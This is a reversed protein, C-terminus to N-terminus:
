PALKAISPLEEETPALLKALAKRRKVLQARATKAAEAREKYQIAAARSRSEKRLLDAIEEDYQTLLRQEVSTLDATTKVPKTAEILNFMAKRKKPKFELFPQKSKLAMFRLRQAHSLPVGKYSVGMQECAWEQVEPNNWDIM